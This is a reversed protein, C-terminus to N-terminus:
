MLAVAVHFAGCLVPPWVSGGISGSQEASRTVCDAIVNEVEGCGVDSHTFLDLRVISIPSPPEDATSANAVTFKDSRARQEGARPLALM